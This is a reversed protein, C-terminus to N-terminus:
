IRHPRTGKDGPARAHEQTQTRRDGPFPVWEKAKHRGAEGSRPAAESGARVWCLRGRRERKGTCMGGGEGQLRQEGLLGGWAVTRREESGADAQDEPESAAEKM